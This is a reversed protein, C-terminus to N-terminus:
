ESMRHFVFLEKQWGGPSRDYQVKLCWGLLEMTELIIVIFDEEHVRQAANNTAGYFHGSSNLSFQLMNAGHVLKLQRLNNNILNVMDHTMPGHFSYSKEVQKLIIFGRKQRSEPVLPAANVCVAEAVAITRNEAVISVQGVTDKILQLAESSTMDDVPVNNVTLVQMGVALSSSAFLGDPRIRSIVIPDYLTDRHFSIGCTQEKVQKYVIGTVLVM